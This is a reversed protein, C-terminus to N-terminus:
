ALLVSKRGAKSPTSCEVYIHIYTHIYVCAHVSSSRLTESSGTATQKRVNGHFLVTGEGRTGGPGM